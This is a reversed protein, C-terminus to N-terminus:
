FFEGLNEADKFKSKKKKTSMNKVPINGTNQSRDQLGSLARRSNLSHGRPSTPFVVANFRQM